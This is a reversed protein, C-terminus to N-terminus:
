KLNKLLIDLIPDASKGPTNILVVFRYLGGKSNEIYGARTSIGSLTGTKYFARGERRMLNYHPAFAELVIHLNHASIKNERSIGSGEVIKFNNIKL